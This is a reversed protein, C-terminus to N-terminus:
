VDLFERFPANTLESTAFDFRSDFIETPVPNESFYRCIMPHSNPNNSEDVNLHALILQIDKSGHHTRPPCIPDFGMYDRFMSADNFDIEAIIEHINQVRAYFYVYRMMDLLSYVSRALKERRDACLTVQLVRKNQKRLANTFDSFHQDAPIGTASDVIATVTSALVPGIYGNVVLTQRNIAHSYTFLQSKNPRIHGARLYSRYALSWAETIQNVTQAVHLNLGHLPPQSAFTSHAISRNDASPENPHLYANRGTM